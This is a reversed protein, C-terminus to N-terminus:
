GEIWMVPRVFVDNSYVCMPMINEGDVALVFLQTGEIRTGLWYPVDWAPLYQMYHRYEEEMLLRPTSVIAKKLQPRNELYNELQRKVYSQQYRNNSYDFKMKFGDNPSKLTIMHRNGNSQLIVFNTGDMRVSRLEADIKARRRDANKSSLRRLQEAACKKQYKEYWILFADTSSSESLEMLATQCVRSCGSNDHGVHGYVDAHKLRLVEEPIGEYMDLLISAGICSSSNESCCKINLLESITNKVMFQSPEYCKKFEKDLKGGKACQGQGDAKLLFYCCTQCNLCSVDAKRKKKTLM